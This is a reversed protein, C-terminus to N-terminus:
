LYIKEKKAKIVLTKDGEQYLYDGKDNQEVSDFWDGTLVKAMKLCNLEIRKDMLKGKVEKLLSELTKKDALDDGTKISSYYQFYKNVLQDGLNLNKGATIKKDVDKISPLSATGKLQFALSRAEYFDIKETEVKENNVGNYNLSKDLGHNKLVEIQEETLIGFSGEKLLDGNNAKLEKILSNIVKQCAELTLTELVNGLVDSTKAKIYTRNIVPIEAFNLTVKRYEKNNYTYEEQCKIMITTDPVEGNTEKLEMSILETYTTEDMVITIEEMNLNGDKILSQNRYIQSKVEKELGVKQAEKPNIKVTGAIKSRLSLNLKDENFILENLPTLVDGPNAKFLNFTDEKAATIKNYNKAPTYYTDGKVLVKLVDMVCLADDAPIYNDPCEGDIYRASNKVVARKFDKIYKAVEDYTFAGMQKDVLHKDKLSKGLIDYAFQRNNNYYLSYAYAYMFNEITADSVQKDLDRSNYTEGNYEFEIEGDAVIFFQNKENNLRNFKMHEKDLKVNTRSLYMIDANKAEIEVAELVLDAIREYNHSFIDLYEEIKSSHIMQGFETINAVKTLFDRNYNWGYGITNLAIIDNKMLEVIEYVRKEEQSSGWSVVPQGDTFLTVNYNPCIVALEKVVEHAEKLPESFCTCGVTSKLTDLMKKISPDNKAGKFVTKYEGEGSFWIVSVFDNQDMADLTLKVNEILQNIDSSM